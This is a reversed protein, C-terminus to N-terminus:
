LIGVQYGQTATVAPITAAADNWKNGQNGSMTYLPSGLSANGVQVLVFISGLCPM